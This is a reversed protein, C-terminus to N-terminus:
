EAPPKVDAPPLAVNLLDERIRDELNFQLVDATNTTALVYKRARRSGEVLTKLYARQAYVAPAARFAAVQNTYLDARAQARSELRRQDAEAQQTRRHTEAGALANTEVAHARAALVTAERKHRASVVEEYAPAIKIPPHIDQLGVFLINVGLQFEDARAQIRRRLEASAGFRGRSITDEFDANVLYRVVERTGIHQLLDGPATHQYAWARLDRIQYHVPISAALLKVPPSEKRDARRTAAPQVPDRSAVLLRFEQHTHKITWLTARPTLGHDDHAGEVHKRGVIFTHIQGTRYRYVLDIPWPLKLHAGAELVGDGVPRGFREVLAQEGVEVFVLCTSALLLGVQVLVLLVLRQELFKYFWTESVKFGFQYDLAHAATSFIGEPRSLLGVLRSEYLLREVKGKVRPRYIELVLTIVNEVALLALLICLARALVRDTRPFGAEAAIIGAMVLALLYAGLLLYSAGPGLLRQHELRALGAAYKGLIFLVLALLALIALVVLPQRLPVAVPGDLWRWFWWGSGAQLVFLLVAFGPVFFREFQERSRRAPFAEAAERDFLGASKGGRTLEDFELQELREREELGMQFWSVAAVLVAMVLWAAAVQGALVDGHRAAAFAAVGVGVLVLVNILGNKQLNREM